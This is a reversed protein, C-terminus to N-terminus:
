ILKGALVGTNSCNQFNRIATHVREQEDGSVLRALKRMLLCDVMTDFELYLSLLCKLNELLSFSIEVSLSM